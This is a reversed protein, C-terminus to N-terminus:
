ENDMEMNTNTDEANLENLREEEEIICDNCICNDNLESDTYMGCETCLNYESIFEDYGVNYAIPDGQQLLLSYGEIGSEGIEDLNHDYM